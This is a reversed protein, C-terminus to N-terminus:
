RYQEQFTIAKDFIESWFRYGKLTRSWVFSAYLITTLPRKHYIRYIEGRLSAYFNNNKTVKYQMYFSTSQRHMNSIYKETCKNKRLFEALELPMTHRIYQKIGKGM